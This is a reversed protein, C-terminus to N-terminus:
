IINKKTQSKEKILLTLNNKFIMKKIFSFYYLKNM